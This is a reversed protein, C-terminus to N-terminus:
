QFHFRTSKATIVWDKLGGFPHVHLDYLKCHISWKGLVNYKFCVSKQWSQNVLYYNFLFPFNLVSLSEYSNVVICLWHGIAWSLVVMKLGVTEMIKLYMYKSVFSIKGIKCPICRGEKNRMPADTKPDYRVIHSKAPSM